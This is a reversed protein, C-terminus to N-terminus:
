RDKEKIKLVIDREDHQSIFLYNELQKVYNRKSFCPMIHSRSNQRSQLYHLKYRSTGM